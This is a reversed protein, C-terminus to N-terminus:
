HEVITICGMGNTMDCKGLFFQFDYSSWRDEAVLDESIPFVIGTHKSTRVMVPVRPKVDGTKQRALEKNAEMVDDSSDVYSQMDEWVYCMAKRRTDFLLVHLEKHPECASV